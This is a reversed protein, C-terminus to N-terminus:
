QSTVDDFCAALQRTLERRHYSQLSATVRPLTGERHGTWLDRLADDIADIDDPAVCLGAHLANMMEEIEGPGCLALLPKGTALYEYLKGPVNSAPWPRRHDVVLLVDARQQYGLATARDVTGVVRAVGEAASQEEPSLEGVLTLELREGWVPELEILRRLASLLPLPSRQPHSYSFSGTHVLRLPGSTVLETEELEAPPDQEVDRPGIRTGEDIVLGEPLPTGDAPDFCNTVVRVKHGQQPYRQRLDAATVGTATIVADAEALVSAELRREFERRYPMTLLAPDLPDYLWADRFDAVWPLGTQEKLFRGLLHSSSPPSTTYILDAPQRRLTRLASWAAGPLWTVQGDPVFLLRRLARLWGAQSGTTRTRSASAPHARAAPNLLRRYLGVPEWARVVGETGDGGFARTSLVRPAYGFEPLYRVFKESREVGASRMPPFHYAVFLVSREAAAPLHTM